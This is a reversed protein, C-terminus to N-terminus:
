EFKYVNENLQTTRYSSVNIYKDLWEPIKISLPEKM